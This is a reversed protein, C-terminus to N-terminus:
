ITWDMAELFTAVANRADPDPDSVGSVPYDAIPLVFLIDSSESRGTVFARRGSITQNWASQIASELNMYPPSSGYSSLRSPDVPTAHVIYHDVNHM